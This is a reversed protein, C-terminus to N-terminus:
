PLSWVTFGEYPTARGVATYGEKVGACVYVDHSAGESQGLSLMGLDFTDVYGGNAYLQATNETVYLKFTNSGSDSTDLLDTTNSYSVDYVPSHLNFNWTGESDFIVRYETGEGINSFVLGYDWAGGAAFGADRPNRFTAEAVFNRLNAGAAMCPAEEDEIQELTGAEPGYLLTAQGDLVQATAEAQIQATAHARALATLTPPAKATAEANATAAVSTQHSAAETESAEAAVTQRTLVTTTARSTRVTARREAQSTALQVAERTANVQATALGPTGSRVLIWVTVGLVLAFGVVVALCPFLQRAQRRAQGRPSPREPREM